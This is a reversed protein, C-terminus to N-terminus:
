RGNLEAVIPAFAEIQNQQITVFNVAYEERREQLRDILEQRTGILVNPHAVLGEPSISLMTAIREAAAPPDDTVEAFFPSSEIDLRGIRDGAADRVYGLRRKAEGQPTLGADNLADYPVNSISVIDAQQAAFTLVNKRGGGIMVPPHPRQAPLPLGTYGRATVHEGEVDLEDGACHAKFMAVFEKLKAIRLGPSAFPVGIAEYEVESWGAGIGFDLRGDSLADLTAAEKALVAPVHYDVCFVRCGVRLTTTVAAAVAMASIPALHQPMQSARRTAPGKGLYHDALFLTSYGLDEARRAVDHWEKASTAKIAQVGFRFPRTTGM